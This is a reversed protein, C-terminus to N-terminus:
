TSSEPPGSQMPLSAPANALLTAGTPTVEITFQLNLHRALRVLTEVELRQTGAEIDAVFM